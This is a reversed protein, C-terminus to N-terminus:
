TKAHTEHFWRFLKHTQMNKCFWQVFQQKQMNNTFGDSFKHKHQKAFGDSFSINNYTNRSVMLFVSTKAHTQLIIQFVTTKAHTGHFWRLFEHKAQTQLVM